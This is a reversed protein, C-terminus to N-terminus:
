QWLARGLALGAFLLAVGAANQMLLNAVAALTRGTEALKGVDFAYTSFTTFSGMFGTLVILRAAEISRAREAILAYALGFLFCGVVNVVLTGWPFREGLARQVVSTLGARSLTGIAGALAVFVIKDLM